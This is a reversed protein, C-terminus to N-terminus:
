NTVATVAPAPPAPQPTLLVHHVAARQHDVEHLTGQRLVLLLRTQNTLM